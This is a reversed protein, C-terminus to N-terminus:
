EFRVAVSESRELMGLAPEGDLVAKLESYLMRFEVPPPVQLHLVHFM